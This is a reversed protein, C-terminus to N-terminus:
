CAREGEGQIIKIGLSKLYENLGPINPKTASNKAMEYLRQLNGSTSNVLTVYDRLTNPPLIVTMQIFGEMRRAILLNIATVEALIRATAPIPDSFPDLLIAILEKKRKAYWSRGDIKLARWNKYLLHPATVPHVCAVSKSNNVQEGAAGSIDKEKNEETM